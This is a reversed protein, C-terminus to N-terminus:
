VYLREQHIYDAVRPLVIARDHRDRYRSSSVAPPRLTAITYRAGLQKLTDLNRGSIPYGPRPVVLLEVLELLQAIQSWRPLQALLDSGVVLTMPLDHGWRDRAQRVTNITRPDSLEPHLALNPHERQLEQVVLCLMAMRHALPTQGTKMPNNAAWVAVYDYHAALWRLIAQHGATPPDASTGFLALNQM